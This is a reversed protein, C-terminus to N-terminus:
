QDKGRVLDAEYTVEGLKILRKRGNPQFGGRTSQPRRDRERRRVRRPLRGKTSAGVSRALVEEWNPIAGFHETHSIKYTNTM